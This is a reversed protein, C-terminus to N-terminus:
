VCGVRREKLGEGFFAGGLSAPATVVAAAQVLAVTKSAPPTSPPHTSLTLTM